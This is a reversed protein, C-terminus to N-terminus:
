ESQPAPASLKKAHSRAEKIEALAVKPAYRSIALQAQVLGTRIVEVVRTEKDTAKYVLNQLEQIAETAADFDKKRLQDALEEVTEALTTGLESDRIQDEALRLARRAGVADEEQLCVGIRDLAQSLISGVRQTDLYSLSRHAAALARKAPDSKGAGLLRECDALHSDLLKANDETSLVEVGPTPETRREVANGRSGPVPEEKEPTAEEPQANEAEVPEEVPSGDMGQAAEESPQEEEAATGKEAEEGTAAPEEKTAPEETDAPPGADKPQEKAVSDPGTGGGKEIKCGVTWLCILLAVAIGSWRQM